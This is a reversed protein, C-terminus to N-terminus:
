MKGFIKSVDVAGDLASDTGAEGMRWDGMGLFGGGGVAGLLAKAPGWGKQANAASVANEVDVGFNM